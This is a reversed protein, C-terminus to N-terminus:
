ENRSAEDVPLPAQRVQELVDGLIDDLGFTPEWGVAAKIKDISPARHLMDEIGQGYVNEYPVTVVDSQSETLAIVKKALELITIRDTAGVNFIQGSVSRDFMLAALARITDKVHCFCRTQSGDGHIELM